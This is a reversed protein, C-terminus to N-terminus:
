AASGDFFGPRPWEPTGLSYAAVRRRIRGRFEIESHIQTLVNFGAARLDFVRAATEPISFDGTMVLSMLPQYRRILNLVEACQGTVIPPSQLAAGDTARCTPAIPTLLEPFLDAAPESPGSNNVARGATFSFAAQSNQQEAEPHTLVKPATDKQCLNDM